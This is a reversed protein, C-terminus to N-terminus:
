RRETAILVPNLDASKPISNFTKRNPRPIAAARLLRADNSREPLLSKSPSALRARSAERSRPMRIISHWSAVAAARSLRARQAWARWRRSQDWSLCGRWSAEEELEALTRWQRSKQRWPDARFLSSKFAWASIQQM